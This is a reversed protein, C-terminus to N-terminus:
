QWEGNVYLTMGHTGTSKYGDLNTEYVGNNISM